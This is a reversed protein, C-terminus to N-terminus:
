LFRCLMVLCIILVVVVSILRFIDFNGLFLVVSLIRVFINLISVCLSGGLRILGNMVFCNCVNVLILFDNLCVLLCGNILGFILLFGFM